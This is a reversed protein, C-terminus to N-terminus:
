IHILSLEEETYKSSSTTSIIVDKGDEKVTEHGLDVLKVVDGVRLDKLAAKVDNQLASVSGTSKNSNAFSIAEKDNIQIGYISLGKLADDKATFREAAWIKNTLSNAKKAATLEVNNNQVEEALVPAVSSALMAGAMVVSLRKKNM